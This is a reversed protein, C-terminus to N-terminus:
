IIYELTKLQKELKKIGSEAKFQSLRKQQDQRETILSEIPTKITRKSNKPYTTM